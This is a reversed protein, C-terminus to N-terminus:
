EGIEQYTELGCDLYEQYEGIGEKYGRPKAMVKEDPTMMVYLPQSNQQFNIIQFDAWMNGVNRIKKGKRHKSVYTKKLKKDDDVYLSVLVFDDTLQNKIKDDVWIHEETKRCNVCGYGTFDLFIPKNNAQAYAKGEYYDKFCPINNACLTYSPYQAKIDKDAGASPKDLFFNYNSPPALGSMAALSNYGGNEKDVFFGTALYLTWALSALAFVLRTPSLKKVPSDHPFKILGFLYATMGAFCLVWIAMFLEYRLFGWHNTMDAVSLFKFALALELFGLVVKVSNMWGGSQPLSNLLAPVAAFVGFPLALGLAFGGMVIAPGLKSGTSAAQVIATGIIPGTCSFSVLALTFAMFFIGILGGKDAMGDSKTTWSSPLTIEYYGFFSFAFFIFILFFMTNAIWNTSLRNLAEEGFVATLVLGLAVYIVIISAGYILGNVWGKRKTDKTFFSVTLPIMPFVCPTLLAILGGILGFIFLKFLSSTEEEGGKCNGLPSAYSATIAPILNDLFNGSINPGAKSALGAGTMPAAATGFDDYGIRQGTVLDFAFDVDTPPLCREADCTMYTLYGKIKPAKTKITHTIVFPKDSLFKIVEVNDFLPDPGQKKKGKETGKGVKEVGKTEYAVETPVPGNDSTFQSYVTWSDDITATYKIEYKDGGLKKMALDWSVPSLFGDDAPQSTDAANNTAIGGIKINDGSSINIGSTSGKIEVKTTTSAAEKQLNTSLAPKVKEIAKKIPQEVAETAVAVATAKTTTTKPAETRTVEKVSTPASVKKATGELKFEFDVDTPPLCKEHNCTMYTLYGSVVTGSPAKLKQKIIFPEDALFKIVDVGFMKDMGEKKHGTEEALGIKEFGESEYNISTPVPGEDSTFQSYVTWPDDMDARFILMHEDGGLHETTVKWKVPDEIQAYFLIPLLLSFLFLLLSRM